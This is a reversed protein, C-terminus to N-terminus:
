GNNDEENVYCLLPQIYYGLQKTAKDLPMATKINALGMANAKANFWSDLAELFGTLEAESHPAIPQNM